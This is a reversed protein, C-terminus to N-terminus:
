FASGLTTSVGTFLTTLATSLKSSAATAAVCAFAIMLGYEVMDQGEERNTLNQVKVLLKLFMTNM